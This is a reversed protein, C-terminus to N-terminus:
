YRSCHDYRAERLCLVRKTVSKTSVLNRMIRSAMEVKVNTAGLLESKMDAMGDM